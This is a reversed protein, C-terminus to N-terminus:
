SSLDKRWVLRVESPLEPYAFPEAKALTCGNRAYFDCAAVNVNQTEVELSSCGRARVLQESAAFLATGIGRDRHSPSVRIDRIEAISPLDFSIVISGVREGGTRAVLLTWRSVDFRNPWDRPSESPIADYDKVFPRDLARETLRWAGPEGSVEYVSRIEFAIAIRGVDSLGNIPEERIVV